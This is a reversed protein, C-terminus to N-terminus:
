TLKATNVHTSQQTDLFRVINTINNYNSIILEKSMDDLLDNEQIYRITPPISDPIILMESSIKREQLFQIVGPDKSDVVALAQTMAKDTLKNRIGGKTEGDQVGTAGADLKVYAELTQCDSALQAWEGVKEKGYYDVLSDKIEDTINNKFLELLEQNDTITYNAHAQKLATALEVLNAIIANQVTEDHKTSKILYDLEALLLKLLIIISKSSQTAEATAEATAGAMAPPVNKLALATRAATLDDIITVLAVKIKPTHPLCWTGTSTFNQEHITTLLRIAVNLMDITKPEAKDLVTLINIADTYATQKANDKKTSATQLRRLSAIYQEINLFNGSM